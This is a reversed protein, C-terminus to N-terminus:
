VLKRCQITRIIYEELDNNKTEWTKFFGQFCRQNWASLHLLWGGLFVRFLLLVFKTTAQQVLCMQQVSAANSHCGTEHYCCWIVSNWHASIRGSVASCLNLLCINRHRKYLRCTMRTCSHTDSSWMVCVNSRQAWVADKKKVCRTYM